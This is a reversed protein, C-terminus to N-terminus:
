PGEVCVLYHGEKPEHSTWLGLFGRNDKGLKNVHDKDSYYTHILVLLDKHTITRKQLLMEEETGSFVFHVRDDQNDIELQIEEEMLTPIDEDEVDYFESWVRATEVPKTVNWRWFDAPPKRIQAM